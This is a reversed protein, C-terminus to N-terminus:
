IKNFLFKRIKISYFYMKIDCLFEKGLMEAVM